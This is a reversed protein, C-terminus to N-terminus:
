FEGGGQSAYDARDMVPVTTVAINNELGIDYFLFLCHQINKRPLGLDYLAGSHHLLRLSQMETSSADSCVRTRDQAIDCGATIPLGMTRRM